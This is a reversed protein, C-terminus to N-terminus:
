AAGTLTVRPLVAARSPTMAPPPAWSMTTVAQRSIAAQWAAAQAGRQLALEALAVPESDAVELDQLPEGLAVPALETGLVEGLGNVQALTRQGAQDVAQGPVAQHLPAAAVHVPAADVHDQGLRALLAVGLRHRGVPVDEGAM